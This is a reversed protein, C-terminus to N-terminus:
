ERMKSLTYRNEAREQCQRFLEEIEGETFKGLDILWAEITYPTSIESGKKGSGYGSFLVIIHSKHEILKKLYLHASDNRQSAEEDYKFDPPYYKQHYETTAYTHQGEDFILIFSENHNDVEDDFDKLPHFVSDPDIGTIDNLWVGFDSYRRVHFMLITGSEM